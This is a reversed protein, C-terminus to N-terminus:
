NKDKNNLRALVRTPAGTGFDIKFPVVWLNFGKPPLAHLNAVMELMYINRSAFLRHSPFTKTNGPDISLADVGVGLVQREVALYRASSVDFSPFNLNVDLPITKDDDVTNNTPAAAAELDKEENKEEWEIVDDQTLAYNEIVNLKGDKFKHVKDYIDIMVGPIDILDELPLEHLKRGEKSFHYPADIHTSTHESTCFGKSAVWFGGATFGETELYWSSKRGPWSMTQNNFAHTLDIFKNPNRASSIFVPCIAFAVFIILNPNM